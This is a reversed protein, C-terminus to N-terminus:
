RQFIRIPRGISQMSVVLIPPGEDRIGNPFLNILIIEEGTLQYYSLPAKKRPRLHKSLERLMLLTLLFYCFPKIKFM